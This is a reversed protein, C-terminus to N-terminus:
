KESTKDHQLHEVRTELLRSTKECSSISSRHGMMGKGELEGQRLEVERGLDKSVM